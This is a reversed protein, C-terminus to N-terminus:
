VIVCISVCFRFHRVYTMQTYTHIYTGVYTCVYMCTHMYICVYMCISLYMPQYCIYCFVNCVFYAPSSVSFDDTRSVLCLYLSFLFIFPFL